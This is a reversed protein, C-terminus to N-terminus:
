SRDQFPYIKAIKKSKPYRSVLHGFRNKETKERLLECFSYMKGVGGYLSPPLEGNKGYPLSPELTEIPHM